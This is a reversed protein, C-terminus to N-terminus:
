MIYHVVVLFSQYGVDVLFITLTTRGYLDQAIKLKCTLKSVLYLGFKFLRKVTRLAIFETFYYALFDFHSVQIAETDVTTTIGLFKAIEALDAFQLEHSVFNSCSLFCM